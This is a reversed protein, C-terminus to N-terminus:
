EDGDGNGNPISVSVSGNVDELEVSGYRLSDGLGFKDIGGDVKGEVRWHGSPLQVIVIDEGSDPASPELETPKTDTATEFSYLASGYQGDIQVPTLEPVDPYKEPDVYQDDVFLDVNASAELATIGGDAVIGPLNAQQETILTARDGSGDPQERITYSNKSKDYAMSISPADVIVSCREGDSSRVWVYQEGGERIPQGGADTTQDGDSGGTSKDLEYARLYDVEAQTDIPSDIDQIEANAGIMTYFPAGLRCSKLGDEGNWPPLRDIGEGNMGPLFESVLEGDFYWRIADERWECGYTHFEESLDTETRNYHPQPYGIIRPRTGVSQDGSSYHVTYAVTEKNRDGLFEYFDIEPPWEPPDRSVKSWYASDAREDAPIKVRAEHYTGPGYEHIGKTHVVGCEAEKGPEKTTRCIMRGDEFMVHSEKAIGPWSSSSNGWGWGSALEGNEIADETFDPDFTKVWREPEAEIPTSM